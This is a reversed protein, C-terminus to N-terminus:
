MGGSEVTVPVILCRNVSLETSPEQLLYEYNLKVGDDSYVVYKYPLQKEGELLSARIQITCHAEMLEGSLKRYSLNYLPLYLVTFCRTHPGGGGEGEAGM